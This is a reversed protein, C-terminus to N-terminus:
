AGRRPWVWSIQLWAARVPHAVNAALFPDGSTDWSFWEGSLPDLQGMDILLQEPMSLRSMFTADVYTGENLLKYDLKPRTKFTSPIVNPDPVRFTTAGAGFGQCFPYAPIVAETKGRAL